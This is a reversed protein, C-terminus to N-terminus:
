TCFLSLLNHAVRHLNIVQKEPKFLFMLVQCKVIKYGESCGKVICSDEFIIDDDPNAHANHRLGSQREKWDGAQQFSETKARTLDEQGV